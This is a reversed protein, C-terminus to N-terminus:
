SRLVGERSLRPGKRTAALMANTMRGQEDGPRNAPVSDCWCKQLDAAAANPVNVTGYITGKGDTINFKTLAASVSKRELKFNM